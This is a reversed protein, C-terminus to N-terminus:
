FYRFSCSMSPMALPVESTTRVKGFSGKGLVVLLKFDNLTMKPLGHSSTNLESGRRFDLNLEAKLTALKDGKVTKRYQEILQLM